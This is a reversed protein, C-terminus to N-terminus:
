AEAASFGAEPGESSDASRRYPSTSRDSLTMRTTTNGYWIVIRLM